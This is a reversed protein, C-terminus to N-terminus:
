KKTVLKSLRQFEKETMDEKFLENVQWLGSQKIKDKTSYHGLWQNSPAIEGTEKAANSLTSIIKREWYIREEKTNIEFVVFSLNKKFYESIAEETKDFVIKLNPDAVFKEQLTEKDEKKTADFDWMELYKSNQKNLICRGINKRFISRDKNKSFHQKLRSRLQDEGKHTGVRVIRDMGQFKEGKEFLVYVGNKPLESDDFPYYFRPQKNFLEHLKFAISKM